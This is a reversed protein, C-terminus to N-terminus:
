MVSTLLVSVQARVYAKRIKLGLKKALERTLKIVNEDHPVALSCKAVADYAEKHRGLEKLSKSKRFLARYNNENHQLSKECDELVQDHAGSAMNLHCAARNAYLKEM